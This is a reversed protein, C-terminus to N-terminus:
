PTVREDLVVPHRDQYFGDLFLIRHDDVWGVAELDQSTPLAHVSVGDSILQQRPGIPNLTDLDVAQRTLLVQKGDRSLVPRAYGYKQGDPPGDLPAQTTTLVQGDTGLRTLKLADGPVIDAVRLTADDEWALATYRGSATTSTDQSTGWTPASALAITVPGGGIDSSAEALALRQGGPAWVAEWAELIHRHSSALPVALGSAVDFLQNTSESMSLNDRNAHGGVLLQSGDPSLIFPILPMGTAAVQSASTALTFRVLTTGNLTGDPQPRFDSCCLSSGDAAWTIPGDVAGDTALQHIAGDVDAVFLEGQSGSDQGVFAVKGGNPALAIAKFQGQCGLFTRGQYTAVGQFQFGPLSTCGALASAVLSGFFAPTSRM